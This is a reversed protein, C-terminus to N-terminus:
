AMGEEPPQTHTELPLRITFQAGGEPRNEVTITGHHARVFGLAISLGLGIGGTKSGPVRYFKEFVRPLSDPPFGSGNDAITVVCEAGDRVARIEIRSGPPTHVASNRLLNLFVQEMLAFDLRVLSFDPPISVVVDHDSLEKTLKETASNVLDRLDTWDRKPQILGSELRTMALLNQVINDLREAASQIEQALRMRLGASAAVVDNLLSESAAILATIPTRMEHSISNFLTTYLRESEALAISRKTMENLFERELASSIQNLFNSLLSEQDISLRAASRPQLGLVGLPYRPGALPYYTAGAFPLTETFRGARKENWHVWSPVSLEKETPHYTSAAHPVHVFDGDLDSLFVAVDADFSKHVHAVAARVVDDQNRASSLDHTLAYLAVAREERSRVAKERARVRVTLIGTVAAVAFYTLVMLVDQPASIYFTFRPPIFLFNWSLASLAAALVVPGVSLRLPLLIVALLLILSITQYGIVGAFPFCAASVALVVASAAAYHPLGSHFAPSRFPARRRPKEAAEGGTVCVDIDTSLGIIRDVLTSRLGMFRSEGSRGVIIQTANQERAVRVLAAAVDEDATTVIEAGLERALAINRAFQEQQAATLPRAREIFVAVWSAQMTFALRRTWRILHVSERSPTVGVVLRQGSRWPGRIRDTRMYDRLQHEVRETALRLAMERLATLNGRRFFNEVARRSREPTYVKGDALRRLLEDPPIDIVEVEDAQEFVSDPLTERVITGTIQAVADARSELHQVNLTSYVDIGNDLLELVDLYRKTHRSGPANTHALEDVLVLAPKRALIADIDMEELHTGRYAVEKLPILALGPLLAETEARGHTHVVGIVVDIGNARADQAAQLMEYTKGVGACMGFFIKLRGRKTREQKLAQLIADPDPRDQAPDTM